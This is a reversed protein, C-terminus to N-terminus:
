LETTMGDVIEAEAVIAEEGSVASNTADAWALGCMAGFIIVYMDSRVHLFASYLVVATPFTSALFNTVWNRVMSLVDIGPEKEDTGPSPIHAKLIAKGILQRVFLAVCCLLPPMQTLAKPIELISCLFNKPGYYFLLLLFRHASVALRAFFFLLGPGETLEDLDVGFLPDIQATDPVTTEDQFEDENTGAHLDTESLSAESFTGIGVNPSGWWSSSGFERIALDKHVIVQGNYQQLGFDFGAVFLIFITVTYMFVPIAKAKKLLPKVPLSAVTRTAADSSDANVSDHEEAAKKQMVMKRRMRAVGLYKKKPEDHGGKSAGQTAEVVSEVNESTDKAPPAEATEATSKETSSAENNDDKKERGVPDVQSAVEGQKQGDQTKKGYRRQRAARIRAANSTSKQKEEEGLAHEGSVVGLRKNAKELIRKRRAEAKARAYDAKDDAMKFKLKTNNRVQM